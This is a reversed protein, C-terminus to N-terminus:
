KKGHETTLRRLDEESILKRLNKRIGALLETDGVPNHLFISHYISAAAKRGLNDAGQGRGFIGIAWSREM